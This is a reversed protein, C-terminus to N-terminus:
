KKIVRLTDRKELEKEFLIRPQPPYQMAKEIDRIGKV